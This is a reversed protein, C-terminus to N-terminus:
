HKLDQLYTNERFLLDFNSEGTSCYLDFNNVDVEDLEFWELQTNKSRFCQHLYSELKYSYKTEFQKILILTENHGTQLQERRATPNKSVGIKYFNTTGAQILYVKM